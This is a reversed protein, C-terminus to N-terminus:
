FAVNWFLVDGTKDHTKYWDIMPQWAKADYTPASPFPPMEKEKVPKDFKYPSVHHIARGIEREKMNHGVQVVHIIADPFALQLGRSMTGSSGVSWVEKPQVPLQRAVKVISALVTPHELGLPLVRRHITDQATYKKAHAQTVNLMGMKVWHYETGLEIGRQQYPHLKDMSREAMFLVAKKGYRKCVVPLSIQAYGTAPCSGFVWEKVDKNEPAHGIFYDVFRIKSGYNLLDDRVVHIDNHMEIVPSPNPDQWDGILELLEEPSSNIM